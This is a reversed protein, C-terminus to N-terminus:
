GAFSRGIKEFIITKGKRIIRIKVCRNIFLFRRGFLSNFEKELMYFLSTGFWVKTIQSFTPKKEWFVYRVTNYRKDLASTLWFTKAEM